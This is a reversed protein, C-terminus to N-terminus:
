YHYYRARALIFLRLSLLILLTALLHAEASFNILLSTVIQRPVIAHNFSVFNIRGYIFIAGVKM